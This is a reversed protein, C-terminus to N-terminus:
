VDKEVPYPEVVGQSQMVFELLEITLNADAYRGLSMSIKLDQLLELAYLSANYYYGSIDSYEEIPFLVGDVIDYQCSMFSQTQTMISIAHPYMQFFRMHSVPTELYVSHWEFDDSQWEYVYVKTM